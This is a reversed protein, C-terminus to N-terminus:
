KEKMSKVVFGSSMSLPSMAIDKVIKNNEDLKEELLIWNACTNYTQFRPTATWYSGQTHGVAYWAVGTTRRRDGTTCFKLGMVSIMGSGFTDYNKDLSLNADQEIVKAYANKTPVCFGVPSPDYITKVVINKTETEWVNSGFTTTITADWRNLCKTNSCWDRNDESRGYFIYPTQIAKGITVGSTRNAEAKYNYKSESYYCPKDSNSTGTAITACCFALMPDKRGWQYYPQNSTRTEIVKGSQDFTFTKTKGSERQTFRVMVSREPWGVRKGPCYGLCQDMLSYTVNNYGKVDTTTSTYDTVWIHWSWMIDGSADRVAIIANGITIFDEPVEFEIFKVDNGLISETATSLKVNTVLDPEDSYVLVADTPVDKLKNDAIFPSSIAQDNHDLFTTLASTASNGPNYSSANDGNDKIANGYVLPLKYKGPRNIIYCNATNRKSSETPKSLDVIGEVATVGKFPDADPDVTTSNVKYYVGKIPRVNTGIATRVGGTHSTNFKLFMEPVTTSWTKGEDTSFKVDWGVPNGITQGDSFTVTGRTSTIYWKKFAGKYNSTLNDDTLTTYTDDSLYEFNFTYSTSSSTPSIKYTYHKGMEWKIGSLKAKLYKTGGGALTFNVQFYADERLTHPILFYTTSDKDGTIAQEKGGSLVVKKNTAFGVNRISDSYKSKWEQKELDIEDRSRINFFKINSITGAPMKADAVFDIATLAHKFNLAVTQNCDGEFQDTKAICFDFVNKNNNSLKFEITPAGTYVNGNAPINLIHGSYGARYPAYAFFRINYNKGPWYYYDSPNLVSEDYNHIHWKTTNDHYRVRQDHIYDSTRGDNWEGKYVYAFLGFGGTGFKQAFNETTTMTGRTAVMGLEEATPEKRDECTIHLYLPQELDEDGEMELIMVQPEEEEDARTVNLWEADSSATFDIQHQDHLPLTDTDDKVCSCFMVGAVLALAVVIFEFKKM